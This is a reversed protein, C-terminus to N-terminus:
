NLDITDYLIPLFIALFVICWFLYCCWFRKWHRRLNQTRTRRVNELSITKVTEVHELAVSDDNHATNAQSSPLPGRHIGLTYKATKGRLHYLESM